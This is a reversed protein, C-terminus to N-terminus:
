EYRLAEIPKIAVARKAPIYGAIIGSIILVVTAGFVIGLDVTPDKFINGLFGGSVNQALVKAVIEM